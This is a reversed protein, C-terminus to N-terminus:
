KVENNYFEIVIMAVINALSRHEKKARERIYNNIEDPISLGCIRKNTM